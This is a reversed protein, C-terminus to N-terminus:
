KWKCKVPEAGFNISFWHISQDLTYPIQYAFYRQKGLAGYLSFSHLGSSNKHCCWDEASTSPRFSHVKSTAAEMGM